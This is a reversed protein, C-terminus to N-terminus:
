RSLCTLSARVHIYEDAGMCGGAVEGLTVQWSDFVKSYDSYSIAAKNIQFGRKAMAETEYTSKDYRWSGLLCLTERLMIGLNSAEVETLSYLM